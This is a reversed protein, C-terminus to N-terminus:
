LNMKQLVIEEVKKAMDYDRSVENLKPESFGEQYRVAAGYQSVEEFQEKFPLLEPIIDTVDSPLKVLDYSKTVNWGNAVLVGKLLKGSARQAHFSVTGAPV